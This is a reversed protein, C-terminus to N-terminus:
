MIEKGQYGHPKRRKRPRAFGFHTRLVEHNLLSLRHAAENTLWRFGYCRHGDYPEVPWILYAAWDGRLLTVLTTGDPLAFHPAFQCYGGAENRPPGQEDMHLESRIYWERVWLNQGDNDVLKRNKIEYEIEFDTQEKASKFRRYDHAKQRKLASLYRKLKEGPDRKAM